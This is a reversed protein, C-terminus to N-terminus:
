YLRERERERKMPSQTISKAEAPLTIHKREERSLRGKSVKTKPVDKANAPMGALIADIQQQIGMIFLLHLVIFSLLFVEKM